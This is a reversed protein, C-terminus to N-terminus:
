KIPEIRAIWAVESLARLNEPSVFRLRLRNLAGDRGAFSGYEAIRENHFREPMFDLVVIVNSPGTAGRLRPDLRGSSTAMGYVQQGFLIAVILLVGALFRRVDPGALLRRSRSKAVATM